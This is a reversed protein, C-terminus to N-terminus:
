RGGGKAEVVVVRRCDDHHTECVREGPCYTNPCWYGRALVKGPRRNKRLKARLRRCWGTLTDLRPGGDKGVMRALMDMAEAAEDFLVQVANRNRHGIDRQVVDPLSDSM